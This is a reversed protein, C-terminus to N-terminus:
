RLVRQEEPLRALLLMLRYALVSLGAGIALVLVGPGSNYARVSEPRTALIGLVAWPAAVALRAANVTWSQRAQLEARTRADERLFASLSRLLRGLDSGGVERTIRLAECIRDAVPDALRDKLDDLAEGFRGTARYDRAFAAFAPRLPEPGREALQGLAEPLSLGARVGSSLNDVAEPWLERLVARRRRARGLVLGAPLWAAILGFCVAIPPSQSLVLVALAVTLGVGACSAIMAQPSVSQVDAQVLLDRIRVSWRSFPGGGLGTGGAGTGARDPDPAWCSWWLCFLGIGLSLGLAAGM